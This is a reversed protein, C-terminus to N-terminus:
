SLTQLRSVSALWLQGIAYALVIPQLASVFGLIAVQVIIWLTLIAAACDAALRAHASRRWVMVAAALQSGGVVLGLILGPVVYDHFPSGDLWARDVGEAGGLAYTMGGLAWFAVFLGSAILARRPPDTVTAPRADRALPM